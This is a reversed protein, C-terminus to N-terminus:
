FERGCTICVYNAVSGTYNDGVFSNLNLMRLCGPCYAGDTYDKEEPIYDGASM